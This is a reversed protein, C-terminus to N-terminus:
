LSSPGSAAQSSPRPSSSPRLAIRGLDVLAIVVVKVDYYVDAFEESPFMRPFLLAITSYIRAVGTGLAILTHMNASRHKLARWAGTFFHRGGYLM